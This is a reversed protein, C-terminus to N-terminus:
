GCSAVGNYDPPTTSTSSGTMQTIEDIVKGEELSSDICYYDIGSKYGSTDSIINQIELPVALVYSGAKVGTYPAGTGYIINPGNNTSTTPSDYTIYDGAMDEIDTMLSGLSSYFGVSYGGNFSIPARRTILFLGSTAQDSYYGIKNFYLKGQILAENMKAKLKVDDSKDVSAKIKVFFITGLIVILAVVVILEILTFGSNKNNKKM